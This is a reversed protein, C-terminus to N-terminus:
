HLHVDTGFHESLRRQYAGVEAAIGDRMAEAYEVETILGKRILLAGLASSNVGVRLHKPTAQDTHEMEAAVGSQMAHVLDLYEQTLEAVRRQEPTLQETM